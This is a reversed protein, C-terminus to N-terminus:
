RIDSRIYEVNQVEKLVEKGELSKDLTQGFTNWM